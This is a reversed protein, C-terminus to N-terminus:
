PWLDIVIYNPGDSVNPVIIESSGGDTTGLHLNGQMAPTTWYVADSYPDVTVGISGTIDGGPYVIERQSGDTNKRIIGTSSNLWYVTAGSDLVVVSAITGASDITDFIDTYDISSSIEDRYVVHSGISFYIDNNVLDLAIYPPSGGQPLIEEASGVGAMDTGKRIIAGTSSGIYVMENEIDIAISQALTDAHFVEKNTGDTDARYVANGPGGHDESWYLIDNVQDIALCKIATGADYLLETYQGDLDSSYIKGDNTTWYIKLDGFGAAALPDFPNCSGALVLLGVVVLGLSIRIIWHKM